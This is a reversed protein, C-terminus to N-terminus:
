DAFTVSRRRRRERRVEAEPADVIAEEFSATESEDDKKYLFYQVFVAADLFLTGLSGIIWSLNVAIYRGYMQAAEGPQCKGPWECASQPSYAFISMVYTANGICAFLFFLM